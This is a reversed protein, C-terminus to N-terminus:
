MISSRALKESVAKRYAPDKAYRPDRMAQTLQATSEFVDASSVSTSGSLLANSTGVKSVYRQRLGEAALKITHIDGTETAKNYANIEEPSLNAAAWSVITQYNEKGGVANFVENQAYEAKAVQGEIYSDVIHKPIGAAELKSYSAESLAGQSSFEDTLANFDVGRQDLTEAIATDEPKDVVEPTDPTAPKTAELFAAELEAVTKYKGALLTEEPTDEPISAPVEGNIPVGSALNAMEQNYEPSGKVITSTESNQTSTALTM